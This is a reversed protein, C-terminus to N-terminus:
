GPEDQGDQAQWAWWQSKVGAGGESSSGGETPPRPALVPGQLVWGVPLWLSQVLSLPSKMALTWLLAPTAQDQVRPVARSEPLGTRERPGAERGMTERPRRRTGSGCRLGPPSHSEKGLQEQTGPPPQSGSFYPKSPARGRHASIPLSVSGAKRLWGPLPAGTVWGPFDSIKWLPLGLDRIAPGVEGACGGATM